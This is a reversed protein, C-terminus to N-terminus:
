EIGMALAHCLTTGRPSGSVGGKPFGNEGTWRYQLMALNFHHALDPREAYIAAVGFPEPDRLSLNKGSVGQAFAFSSLM